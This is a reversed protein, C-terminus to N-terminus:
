SELAALYLPRQVRTNIKSSTVTNLASREFEYLKYEDLRLYTFLGAEAIITLFLALIIKKYTAISMNKLNNGRL